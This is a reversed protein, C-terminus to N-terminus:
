MLNFQDSFHNRAYILHNGTLTLTENQTTISKCQIIMNQEKQLFAKVETYTPQGTSSVADPYM